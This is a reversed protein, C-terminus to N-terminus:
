VKRKRLHGTKDIYVVYFPPPAFSRMEPPKPPQYRPDCKFEQGPPISKLCDQQKRRGDLQWRTPYKEPM